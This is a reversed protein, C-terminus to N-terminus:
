SNNARYKLKIAKLETNQQTSSTIRQIRRAAKLM